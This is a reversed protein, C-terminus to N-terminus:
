LLDIHCWGNCNLHTVAGAAVGRGVNRNAEVEVPDQFASMRVADEGVAVAYRMKRVRLGASTGDKHIAFGDELPANLRVIREM